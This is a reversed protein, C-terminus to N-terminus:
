GKMMKWVVVVAVLALAGWVMKPADLGLPQNVERAGSDLSAGPFAIQMNFGRLGEGSDSALDVGVESKTTGSSGSTAAGGSGSLGGGGGGLGGLMGLM